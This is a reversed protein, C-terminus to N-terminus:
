QDIYGRNSLQRAIMSLTEAIEYLLFFGGVTAVGLICMILVAVAYLSM